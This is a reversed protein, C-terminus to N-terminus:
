RYRRTGTRNGAAKGSSRRRGATCASRPLGASFESGYRSDWAQRGATRYGASPSSDSMSSGRARAAPSTASGPEAARKALPEAACRPRPTDQDFEVVALRRAASRCSATWASAAVPESAATRRVIAPAACSESALRLRKRNRTRRTPEKASPYPSRSVALPKAVEVSEKEKKPQVDDTFPPREFTQGDGVVRPDGAETLIRMLREAMEKKAAAYAPDNAVNKIQDPDKAVDYLEEGPRKGFAYDYHWKWKPDNRQAVLWARTPSADMDAFAVFTDHELEKPTPSSKDTVGKPDGMPWRDPQFNRIYLFKETRLARMPYPVNGARAAAVHREKGTVVWTREPDVLGSKKSKLVNAISRGQMGPAKQVGGIELFTPALDMLNVFDDVVRGAPIGPGRAILAVGTGFDYLNCKGAPFGPAGHDGSIIIITNDLEGAQALLELIVGVGADWAQIEGLYDAFDERVEHVDPLFKPLKGKLSDPEIGWLKKGSGKEWKRHVLTAGFWYCFPQDKPRAKLFAQFNGRVEDLLKAKAADVSTGSRVLQSANESFNNYLGGAPQFAHKQGGYPADVPTGPSWVKFAKGLFYGANQLLLPWSPIAPDWIAGQLIAARGTNFFYRGSLLSSRCPTCSPANVFAHRFIVGESALRDINPTRVIQNPSSRTELKAYASAYKGWDDAFFFLINPRKPEGAFVSTPVIVLITTFLFFARM